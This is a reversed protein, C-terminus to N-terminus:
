SKRSFVRSIYSSSVPSSYDVDSSDSSHVLIAIMNWTRIVGLIVKYELDDPGGYERPNKVWFLTFM